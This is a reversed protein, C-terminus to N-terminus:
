NDLMKEILAVPDGGNLDAPTGNIVFATGNVQELAFGVHQLEPLMERLLSADNVNLTFPQPFLEQQSHGDHNEMEKLFKEFLIRCHALHQDIVLIGSKVTTVIYSQNLQLYHSKRTEVPTEIEQDAREGYLLRWDGPDEHKM